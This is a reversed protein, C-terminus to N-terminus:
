LHQLTNSTVNKSVAHDDQSEPVGCPPRACPGPARPVAVVAPAAANRALFSFCDSFLDLFPDHTHLKEKEKKIQISYRGVIHPCLIASLKVRTARNM